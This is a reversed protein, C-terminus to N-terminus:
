PCFGSALDMALTLKHEALRCTVREIDQWPSDASGGQYARGEKRKEKWSIDSKHRGGGGGGERGGWGLAEEGGGGVKEGRGGVGGSGGAKEVRRRLCIGMQLQWGGEVKQKDEVRGGGRVGGKVVGGGGGWYVYVKTGIM